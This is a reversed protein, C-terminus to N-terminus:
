LGLIGSRGNLWEVIIDGKNFIILGLIIKKWLM